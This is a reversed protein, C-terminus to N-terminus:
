VILTFTSSAAFSIDMKASIRWLSQSSLTVTVGPWLYMARLHAPHAAFHESLRM